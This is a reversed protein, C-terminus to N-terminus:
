MLRDIGVEDRAVVDARWGIKLFNVPLSDALELLYLVNLTGFRRADAVRPFQQASSIKKFAATGFHSPRCETDDRRIRLVRLVRLICLIRVM